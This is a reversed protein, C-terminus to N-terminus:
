IATPSKTLNKAPEISQHGVLGHPTQHTFLGTKLGALTRVMERRFYPIRASPAFVADRVQAALRSDSQFFPTLWRSALGYFRTHDRRAKAFAALADAIVPHEALADALTVADILALNAGQGLQPSAARASDGVFALREAFPAKLWVDAYSAPALDAHSKFQQVFPAAEPWLAAVEAQWTEFPTKRWSDFDATRLSWFFAALPQDSTPLRGIPLIGVMKSAADYRQALLDTDQWHSPLQTVGWIAGYRYPRNLTIKAHDRRLTSHLGTADIVLDFVGRDHGNADSLVRKREAIATTTIDANTVTTIQRHQRLRDLIHFLAGRHIGLGFMDPIDPGLTRYDIDFITRGARTKGQIGSIPQALELADALLGLRALAAQGTPQLMLGAGIPRPTEVKEFLTVQHGRADLAIATALGGIGSGCVAISHTRM